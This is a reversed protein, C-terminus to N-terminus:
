STPATCGASSLQPNAMPASILTGGFRRIDPHGYQADGHFTNVTTGPIANGFDWVCTGVPNTTGVAHSSRGVSWFPYFAAGVPPATCGQGTHTNCLAESGAVDTEFQIEPYGHGHSFPGLYQLSTPHRTSGDPWDAVYSSGDFDLDGNQFFDTQCGAVPWGVQEFAGNVVLPRPGRPMCLADSFECPLLSTVLNHFPCAGGGETTPSQCTGTTTSCPGEGSKTAEFGGVCTQSVATDVFSQGGPYQLSYPFPHSVSSCPTFHGLENALMVSGEAAAWPVQNQPSASSFEAHFSFPHGSCDLASTNMFGNAASATIWGSQGTSLDNVQARLGGTTDVMSVQLQDGPNMMLTSGNPTFTAVDALQPSPPGAPVGNRQLFAFNVPETCNANCYKFGYTCELSDITLAACWKGASCSPSDIFPPYGPPYFQLEMFASGAAGPDNIASRNGNSDPACRNLPYSQPDCLALGLWVAPGLEAADSTIPLRRSASPPGSPDTSLTLGYTLNNASGAATSLFRVSPEDHGVYRGNDYFRDAYGNWIALPDTCLGGLDVKVSRYSLSHGNCDLMNTVNPSVSGLSVGSAPIAGSLGLGVGFLTGLALLRLRISPM